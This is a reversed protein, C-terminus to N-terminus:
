GTEERGGKRLQAEENHGGAAKMNGWGRGKSIRGKKLCFTKIVDKAVNGPMFSRLEGALSQVQAGQPPFACLRLWQVALPTGTPGKM